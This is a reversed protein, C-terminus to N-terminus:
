AEPQGATASVRIARMHGARCWAIKSTWRDVLYDFDEESFDTVFAAREDRLDAVERELADV